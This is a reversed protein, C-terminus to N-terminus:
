LAEVAEALRVRILEKQLEAVRRDCAAQYPNYSLVKNADDNLELISLVNGNDGENQKTTKAMTM